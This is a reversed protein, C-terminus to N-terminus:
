YFKINLLKWCVVILRFTNLEVATTKPMNMVPVPLMATLPVTNMTPNLIWSCAQMSFLCDIADTAMHLLFGIAFIRTKPHLLMTCYVIIAISSHLPHFGISCRCADFVPTALLHDLDVLMTLLLMLYSKILDKRYFLYAIILPFILHLFYHTVQQM